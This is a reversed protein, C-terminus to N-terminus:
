DDEETKEEGWGGGGGSTLRLITKPSLKQKHDKTIETKLEGLEITIESKEGAKGGSQGNARSNIESALINLEADALISFGIHVGSGGKHIGKGLQQNHNSVSKFQVPFHKETKEISFANTLTPGTFLDNAWLSFVKAGERESSGGQGGPLDFDWICKPGFSISCPGIGEADAAHNKGSRSLKLLSSRLFGCLEKLHVRTAIYTNKIQKANLMSNQPTRLQLASFSGQNAPIEFNSLSVLSAFCAAFSMFETLQFTESNTTGIFDFLINENEKCEIRLKILEGSSLKHQFHFEGNSLNKSIWSLLSKKTSDFYLDLQDSSFSMSPLTKMRLIQEEFENLQAIQETVKDFLLFSAGPHSCIATLIEKNIQNRIALPTPPIRLSHFPSALDGTGGLTFRLSILFDSSRDQASSNSLSIAKVLCVENLSSGGSSPDNVIAIDGNKMKLYQNCFRASASLSYDAAGLTEIHVVSGNVATLAAPAFESLLLKLACSWQVSFGLDSDAYSRSM